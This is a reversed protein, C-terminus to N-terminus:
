MCLFVGLVCIEEWRCKVEENAVTCVSADCVCVTVVCNVSGGGTDNDDNRDMVPGSRQTILTFRADASLGRAPRSSSAHGTM